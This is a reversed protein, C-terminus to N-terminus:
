DSACLNNEVSQHEWGEPSGHKEWARREVDRERYLHAMLGRETPHDVFNLGVLDQPGLRYHAKVDGAKIQGLVDYDLLTGPLQCGNM